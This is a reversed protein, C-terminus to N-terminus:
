SIHACAVVKIRQGGSSDRLQSYKSGRMAVTGGAVAHMDNLLHLRQTLDDLSSEDDALMGAGEQM